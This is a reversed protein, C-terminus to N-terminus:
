IVYRSDLRAKVQRHNKVGVTRSSAATLNAENIFTIKITRVSKCGYQNVSTSCGENSILGGSDLRVVKVKRQNLHDLSLSSIRRKM